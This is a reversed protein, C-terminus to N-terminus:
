SRKRLRNTALQRSLGFFISALTGVQHSLVCARAIDPPVPPRGQGLYPRHEEAEPYITIGGLQIGLAAAFAAEALGANPSPHKTGDQYVTRLVGKGPSLAAVFGATCRAPVWAMMDDWKAAAWGFNKYRPTHHGVMSDLTNVTKHLTVGTPGCVTGWFLPAVIADVTSEAVSEITARTLGTQDLVSPDRGVLAPVIARAAAIDHHELHRQVSLAHAHLSKGAVSVWTTGATAFRVRKGAAGMVLAPIAATAAFLLGAPRTPAYLHKELFSIWSGLLEIPHPSVSPEGWITDLFWALPIEQNELAQRRRM